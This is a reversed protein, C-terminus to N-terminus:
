ASTFRLGGERSHRCFCPRQPRTSKREFPGPNGGERSHRCFCPRQPKATAACTRPSPVPRDSLM